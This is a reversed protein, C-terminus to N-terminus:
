ESNQQSFVRKLLETVRAQPNERIKKEEKAVLSFIGDLTGQMIYNEINLDPKKTFPIKDYANLLDKYDSYFGIKQMSNTIIPQFKQTLQQQTNKKFYDTAANEPGRLIGWADALSMSTISQVFVDLAAGSASEAAKNMQSEFNDVYGGLGIKRLTSAASDLEQPLALRLLPNNAFGGSQSTQNISNKVGINLAQKLGAAVTKEDLVQNTQLVQIARNIDTTKCASLILSTVICVAALTLNTKRTISKKM